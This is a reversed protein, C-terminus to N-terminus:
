AAVPVVTLRREETEPLIAAPPKPTGGGIALERLGVLTKTADLQYHSAILEERMQIATSLARGLSALADQGLVASLKAEERALPIVAVLAGLKSIATDVAQEADFLHTAVRLAAERREKLM